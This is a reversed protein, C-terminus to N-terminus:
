GQLEESFINSDEEETVEEEEAKSKKVLIIVPVAVLAAIGLWKLLKM